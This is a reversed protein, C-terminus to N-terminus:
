VASQGEGLKKIESAINDLKDPIKQLEFQTKPLEEDHVMAERLHEASVVFNRENVEGSANTYSITGTFTADTHRAFFEHSVDLLRTAKENPGLAPLLGGPGLEVLSGNRVTPGRQWQIRVAFAASQGLNALKLPLL